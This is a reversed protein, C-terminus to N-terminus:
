LYLIQRSNMTVVIVDCAILALSRCTRNCLNSTRNACQMRILSHRLYIVLYYWLYYDFITSFLTYVYSINKGHSRRRSKSSLRVQAFIYNVTYLLTKLM